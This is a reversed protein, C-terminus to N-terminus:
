NTIKQANAKDLIRKAQENKGVSILFDSYDKCLDFDHSALRYCHSYNTLAEHNKNLARAIKACMWRYNYNREDITAAEQAWMYATDLDNIDQYFESMKLYLNANNPDLSISKKLSEIAFDTDGQEFLAIANYYYGEPCNEDLEIIEQAEEYMDTFAKNEMLINALTIHANIYKPNIELIQEAVYKANVYNKQEFEYDLYENLYVLSSPNLEIAKQLDKNALSSHMLEKNIIFSAYYVFDNDKLEKKLIDIKQKAEILNGQKALLITYLIKADKNNKNIDLTANAEGIAASYNKDRYYLYALSYHYNENMPNICIARRFAVTAEKYWGALFYETAINYIYEANNDDLELAKSYYNIANDRQGEEAYILGLYNYIESNIIEEIEENKCTAVLIHKAKDNDRELYYIKALLLNMDQNNKNQEFGKELYKKAKDFDNFEYYSLGLEYCIENDYETLNEAIKDTSDKDKLQRLIYIGCKLNKSNQTISSIKNCVEKALELENREIHIDRLLSLADIHNPNSNLVQEIYYIARDTEKLLYYLHALQELIEINDPAVNLAKYLMDIAPKYFGQAKLAFSQKIYDLIEQNQM